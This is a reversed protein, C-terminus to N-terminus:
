HDVVALGPVRDFVDDNTVLPEDYRLATAAVQLDHWPMTKGKRALEFWISASAEALEKTFPECIVSRMMHIAIRHRQLPPFSALFELWAATPVRVPVRSTELHKMLALASPKRRELDVLFTTDLVTM